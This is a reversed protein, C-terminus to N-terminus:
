LMWCLTLIMLRKPFLRIPLGAKRHVMEPSPSGAVGSDGGCGIRGGLAVIFPRDKNGTVGHGLVVINKAGREGEHFAYDLREGHGNKIEDFM